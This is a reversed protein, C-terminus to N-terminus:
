RSVWAGGILNGDAGRTCIIGYRFAYATFPLLRVKFESRPFRQRLTRAYVEARAETRYSRLKTVGPRKM